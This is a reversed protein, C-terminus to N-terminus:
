FRKGSDSAQSFAGSFKIASIDDVKKNIWDEVQSHLEKTTLEDTEIISSIVVTIVGPRKIWDTNSWYEGSNHAVAIAPAKASTALLAAGKSFEKRLGPKVRTGEPFIMVSVGQQLRDKGQEVVQKLANTKKKRDIWIPNILTLMWGFIPLKSLEAKVVPVQPYLLTALFFTEWTSQHKCFVLYGRNDKPLHEKGIINWKIGCLLRAACIVTQSYVVAIVFHKAKIPLLFSAILSPFIWLITFSVWFFYFLVSRCAHTLRMLLHTPQTTSLDNSM